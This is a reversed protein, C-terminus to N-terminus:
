SPWISTAEIETLEQTGQKPSPRTRRTDEMGEPEEEELVGSSWLFPNSASIGNLSEREVYHRVTPRQM